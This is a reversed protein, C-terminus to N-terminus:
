PIIEPGFYKEYEFDKASIIKKDILSKIEPLIRKLENILHKITYCILENGEAPWLNAKNWYLCRGGCLNLYSCKECNGSVKFKKLESPNSNINGAEFDKITNMIPCAVIKGTTSIAYGSHGAGCRLETTENKLLSDIIGIFPYFRLVKGKKGEVANQWLEPHGGHPRIEALWFNILQTIQKNYEKTFKKATKEDYDFKYFGLDLQWHISDFLNLKLINKVQDFIDPFESLTMRAVIEGKYGDKRAQKINKIVLDFTKEGRNYDTRDKDGDISVLIKDIKNLYKLPLTDLLKANTQMRFPVNINDIIQKIKELELLPEGGYFILVANKDKSLFEKLKKIDLNTKDPESFDFQFKKDLENDFEKFSKEYCYKCRSNCLNTLILHYHM